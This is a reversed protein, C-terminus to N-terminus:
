ASYMTSEHNKERATFIKRGCYTKKRECFLNRERLLFEGGASTFDERVVSIIACWLHAELAM